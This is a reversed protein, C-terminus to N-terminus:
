TLAQGYIWHAADGYGQVELYDSLQKNGVARGERLLIEVEKLVLTNGEIATSNHAEAYWIDGWMDEAEAPSPLGGVRKLQELADDLRAYIDLRSKRGRSDRVRESQEAPPQADHRTM